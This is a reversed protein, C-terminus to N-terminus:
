PTEASEIPSRSLDGARSRRCDGAGVAKEESGGRGGGDVVVVQSEGMRSEGKIRAGRREVDTAVREGEASSDGVVAARKLRDGIRERKGRRLRDVGIGAVDIQAAEDAAGAEAKGLGAGPCQNERTRIGVGAGGRDIRTGYRDHAVAAETGSGRGEDEVAASQPDIERSRQCVIGM